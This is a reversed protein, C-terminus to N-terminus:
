CMKVVIDHLTNACHAMRDAANALHRYIERRKFMIKFDDGQFLEALAVRYLKEVRREAKRAANADEQAGAPATGLKGFGLVLAAVGEQLQKTMELTFKDPSVNLVDMESVTAKCYNVVKDLDTIARYIDERDIPTSFAENLAHINSVKIKDAEHEEQKIQKGIEADATEMFQVLLSVTHAVQQSQDSLMQFFNASKPFFRDFIAVLLSKSQMNNETQPNM